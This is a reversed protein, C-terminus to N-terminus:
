MPVGNQQFEFGIDYYDTRFNWTIENGVCLDFSQIYKEGAPVVVTNFAHKPFRISRPPWYLGYNNTYWPHSTNCGGYRSPIESFDIDELLAKRWVQSNSAYIKVKSLTRQTLLPKIIPFFIEFIKPANVVFCVRM